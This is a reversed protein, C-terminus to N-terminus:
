YGKDFDIIHEPSEGAKYTALNKLFVRVKDLDEDVYGGGTHQTLLLNPCSWLPDDAPLPEQRTVDLVAGALQGSRLAQLLAKEDILSGRGANVLVASPKLMSLRKETFIDTTEETEPLVSIIVDAMPLLSDLDAMTPPQSNRVFSVSCDFGGLIKYIAQGIAGAGLVLVNKQHLLHMTPRLKSGVWQQDAQLRALEDIRRYLAMLGAIASEAVPQAFFGKLNTVIINPKQESQYLPLYDDFGTSYLQVWRLTDTETLWSAPPKGFAVEAELFAAKRESEPLDHGWICVDDASLTTRILERANDPLQFTIYIKM